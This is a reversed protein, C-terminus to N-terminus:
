LLIVSTFNVTLFWYCHRNQQVRSIRHGNALQHRFTIPDERLRPTDKNKNAFKPQDSNIQKDAFQLVLLGYFKFLQFEFEVHSNTLADHIGIKITRPGM